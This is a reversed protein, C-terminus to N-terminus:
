QVGGFRSTKDTGRDVCLSLPPATLPWGGGVVTAQLRVSWPWAKSFYIQRPTSANRPSCAEILCVVCEEQVLQKKAPPESSPPPLHVNSLEPRLKDKSSIGGKPAGVAHVTAINSPRRVESSHRASANTPSAASCISGSRTSCLSETANGHGTGPHLFFVLTSSAHLRPGRLMSPGLARPALSLECREAEAAHGRQAPVQRVGIARGHHRPRRLRRPFIPLGCLPQPTAHM